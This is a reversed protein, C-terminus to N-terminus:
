IKNRNLVKVVVFNEKLQEITLTDYDSYYSKGDDKKIVVFLPVKLYEINLLAGIKYRITSVKAFDHSDDSYNGIKAGYSTWSAYENNFTSIFKLKGNEIHYLALDPASANKSKSTVSMSGQLYTEDRDATRYSVESVDSCQGFEFTRNFSLASITYKIEGVTGQSGDNFIKFGLAKIREEEAKKKARETEFKKIMIEAEKAEKSIPYKLILIQLETEANELNNSAILNKASNLRVDPTNKLEDIQIKAKDLEQKLINNENKLSDLQISYRAKDSSNNTCSALLVLFIVILPLKSIPFECEGNHDFLAM